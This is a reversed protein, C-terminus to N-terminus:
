ERRVKSSSVMELDLFPMMEYDKLRGVEIEYANRSREGKANKVEVFISGEEEPIGGVTLNNGTFSKGSAVISATSQNDLTWTALTFNDVHSPLRLKYLYVSPSFPPELKGPSSTLQRLETGAVSVRVNVSYTTVSAALSDQPTVELKVNIDAGKTLTLNLSPKRGYAIVEWFV